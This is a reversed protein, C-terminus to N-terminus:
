DVIKDNKEEEEEEKFIIVIKEMFTLCVIKNEYNKICCNCDRFHKVNM